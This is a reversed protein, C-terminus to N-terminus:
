WLQVGSSGFHNGVQVLDFINCRDDGNIDGAACTNPIAATPPLNGIRIPPYPASTAGVFTLDIINIASDPPGPITVTITGPCGATRSAVIQPGVM